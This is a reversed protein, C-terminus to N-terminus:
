WIRLKLTATKGNLYGYREVLVSSIGKPTRKGCSFMIGNSFIIRFDESPNDKKGINMLNRLKQYDNKCMDKLYNVKTENFYYPEVILGLRRVNSPSWNKPHGETKILIESLRFAETKLNNKRSKTKYEPITNSIQFVLYIVVTVFLVFAILYQINLQGKKNKNFFNM